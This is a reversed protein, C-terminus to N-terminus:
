GTRAGSSSPAAMVAQLLQRERMLTQIRAIRKRARGVEHHQDLQHTTLRMRLNFFERQAGYLEQWLDADSLGRLHTLEEKRKM